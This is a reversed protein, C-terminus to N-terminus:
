YSYCDTFKCNTANHYSIAGGYGGRRLLSTPAKANKFILNKLIINKGQNQFVNMEMEILQIAM